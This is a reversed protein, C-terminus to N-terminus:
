VVSEHTSSQPPHLSAPSTFSARNGARGSVQVTPTKMLGNAEAPLKDYNGVNRNAASHSSMSGLSHTGLSHTHSSNLETLPEDISHDARPPPLPAPIHRGRHSPPSRIMKPANASAGQPAKPYRRPSRSPSVEQGRSMNPPRHIPYNQPQQLEHGGTVGAHVHQARHREPSVSSFASKPINTSYYPSSKPTAPHAHSYNRRRQVEEHRARMDRPQGDTSNVSSISQFRQDSSSSSYPTREPSSGHSNLPGHRYVGRGHQSPMHMGTNMDARWGDSKPRPQAHYHQVSHMSGGTVQSDLGNVHNNSVGRPVSGAVMNPNHSLPRSYSQITRQPQGIKQRTAPFPSSSQARRESGVPPVLSMLGRTLRDSPPPAKAMTPTTTSLPQFVETSPLPQFAETSAASEATSQVLKDANPISSTRPPRPPPPAQRRVAREQTTSSAPPSQNILLRRAGKPSRPTVARPGISQENPTSQQSGTVEVEETAAVQHSRAGIPSRPAKRPREPSSQSNGAERRPRQPSGDGNFVDESEESLQRWKARTSKPTLSTPSPTYTPTPLTPTVSGRTNDLALDRPARQKPTHDRTDKDSPFYHEELGSRYNGRKAPVDVFVPLRIEENGKDDRGEGGTPAVGVAGDMDEMDGGVTGPSLQLDSDVDIGTDNTCTKQSDMDQSTLRPRMLGVESAMATEPTYGFLPTDIVTDSAEVANSSFDTDVESTQLDSRNSESATRATNTHSSNPSIIPSVVAAQASGSGQQGATPNSAARRGEPETLSRDRSVRGNPISISQSHSNLQNENQNAMAVANPGVPLLNKPVYGNHSVLTPESIIVRSNRHLYKTGIVQEDGNQEVQSCCRCNRPCGIWFCNGTKKPHYFLYYCFMFVLGLPYLAVVIIMTSLPYLSSFADLSDPPNLYFLVAMTVNEVLVVLHYVGAWVRTRGRKPNFYAFVYVGAAILDFPIELCLRRTFRLEGSNQREIDACFTTRELLLLFVTLLWHGGVVAVVYYEFAYGFVVLAAVRSVIMCLYWMIQTLHAPLVVRRNKGSVRDNTAFSLVTYLVSIISIGLASLIAPSLPNLLTSPSTLAIVSAYAHIVVHPASSLFTHFFRVLITDRRLYPLNNHKGILTLYILQSYRCLVSSPANVHSPCYHPLPLANVHSPHSPM